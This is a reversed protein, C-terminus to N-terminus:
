RDEAVEAVSIAFTMDEVVQADKIFLGLIKVTRNFTVFLGQGNRQLGAVSLGFCLAKTIEADTVPVQASGARGHLIVPARQCNSLAQGVPLGLPLVQGAQAM